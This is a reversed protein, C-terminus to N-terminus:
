VLFSQTHTTSSSNTQSVTTTTTEKKRRCAQEYRALSTTHKLEIHRKLNAASKASTRVQKKLGPACLKCHYTRNRGDADTSVLTYFEKLYEFPDRDSHDRDSNTSTSAEEEDMSDTQSDTQKNVVLRMGRQRERCM